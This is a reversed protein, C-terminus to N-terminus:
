KHRLEKIYDIFEYNKKVAYDLNLKHSLVKIIQNELLLAASGLLETLCSHFRDINGSIDERQFANNRELYSLVTNTATEGFIQTLSEKVADVVLENFKDKNHLPLLPKM